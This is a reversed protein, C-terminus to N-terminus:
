VFFFWAFLLFAATLSAFIIKLPAFLSSRWHRPEYLDFVYHSFVFVIFITLFRGDRLLESTHMSLAGAQFRIMQAIMFAVFLGLADGALLWAQLLRRETTQSVLM